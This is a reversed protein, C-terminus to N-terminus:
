TKGRKLVAEAFAKVARPNAVMVALTPQEALFLALDLGYIGTSELVVRTETARKQKQLRKLLKKHGAPTNDFVGEFQSPGCQLAVHLTKASVDIGVYQVMTDGAFTTATPERDGVRCGRPDGKCICARPRLHEEVKAFLAPVARTESSSP